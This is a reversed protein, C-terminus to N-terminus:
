KFASFFFSLYLSVRLAMTALALHKYSSTYIILYLLSFTYHMHLGVFMKRGYINIICPNGKSLLHTNQGVTKWKSKWITLNILMNRNVIHRIVFM